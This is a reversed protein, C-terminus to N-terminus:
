TLVVILKGYVSFKGFNIYAIKQDDMIGAGVAVRHAIVVISLKAGCLHQQMFVAAKFQDATCLCRSIIKRCQVDGAEIKSASQSFSVFVTSNIQCM